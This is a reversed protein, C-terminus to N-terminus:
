LEPVSGKKQEKEISKNYMKKAM